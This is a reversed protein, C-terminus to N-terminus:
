TRSFDVLLLAHSVGLLLLVNANFSCDHCCCVGSRLNEFDPWPRTRPATRQSPKLATSLASSSGGRMGGGSLEGGDGGPATEEPADRRADAATAAATPTTGPGGAARAAATGPRDRAECGRAPTSRAAALWTPPPSSSRWNCNDGDGNSVNGNAGSGTTVPSSVTSSKRPDAGDRKTPFGYKGEKGEKGEEAAAAAAVTAAAAPSPTLVPSAAALLKRRPLIPPGFRASPIPHPPTAVVFANATGRPAATATAASSSSASCLRTASAVAAM